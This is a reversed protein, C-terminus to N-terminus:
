SALCKTSGPGIMVLRTHNSVDAVGVWIGIKTSNPQTPFERCIRSIYGRQSKSADRKEHVRRSCFGTFSNAQNIAWFTHFWGLIHRKPTENFFKVGVGVLGWM